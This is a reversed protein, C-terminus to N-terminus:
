NKRVIGDAQTIKKIIKEEEINNGKVERLRSRGESLMKKKELRRVFDLCGELRETFRTDRPGKSIIDAVIGITEESGLSALLEDGKICGKKEYIEYIHGAIESFFSCPFEFSIKQRIQPITDNNYLMIEILERGVEEESSKPYEIPYGIKSTLTPHTFIPHNIITELGIKFYESVYHLLLNRKIDNKVRRIREIANEVIKTRGQPTPPYKKELSSIIFSFVEKSGKLLKLFQEPGGSNKICDCPDTNNPLECVFIDIDEGLLMDVMREQAQTGGEDNDLVLVIKNAFRKILKIHSPTLATGLPAVIGKVGFQYPLIVDFYGEVVYLTQTDRVDDKALNLGFLNSGKNFVETESSNLYKPETNDLSRAGFGITEGKIDLIPIILRGRFYDYFRSIQNQRSPDPAQRILGSELLLDSSYGNRQANKLLVDWGFPSFGIKFVDQTQKNVGRKKLYERGLKGEESELIRRFFKTAWELVNLIQKKKSHTLPNPTTPEIKIGAKDAVIKVAEPFDVKEMAMIFSFVNGGKGCGFCKFVQKSPSVMFSPTKENHFPCLAKYDAGSKRLQIYGSIIETIDVAEQIKLITEDPIFGMNQEVGWWVGTCSDCEIKSPLNPYMMIDFIKKIDLKKTLVM